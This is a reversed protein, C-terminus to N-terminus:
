VAWEEGPQHALTMLMRQSSDKVSATEEQGWGLEWPLVLVFLLPLPVYVPPLSVGLAADVRYTTSTAVCASPSHVDGHKRCMPTYSSRPCAHTCTQTYIELHPYKLFFKSLM